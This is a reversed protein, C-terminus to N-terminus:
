FPFVLPLVFVMVVGIIIQLPLGVKIFDLATYQGAPMVLANPPTSFTSSFSMNAAICVALMFPMPNVGLTVATQLSITSMLVTTVTNSLFFTMVSTAIYIGALVMLPSHSGLTVALWGSIATSIGTKELAFSMPMMAACLVVTQWSISKYAAEMSRVCGTVIMLIAAITVATVPAIPIFDFVMLLVMLVLIAAALPAKHDMTVKSAQEMPQGLVVFDNDERSIRGIDSWAGQVLLVDGERVSRDALDHLLYEKKRRIGLVNLNYKYRFGIDRVTKNILGSTPMLLIEAIGVDYFDLAAGNGTETEHGGLLKGAVDEAFSEANEASGSLYLIDGANIVTDAKVAETNVTKFFRHQLGAGRRIELLNLGYKKRIELENVTKGAAESSEGVRVRFLNRSLGYEMVLQGPSKGSAKVEKRKRKSFFFKTLPLLVVTGIVVCIVGIPFLTFFSMGKYGATVMADNVIMNAPTGILTLMGGLSSAFAVPMLLRSPNMGANNAISVVIPLMLAVTGTNSVFAGIFTTALMVLLFLRTESKGALKLVKASILKALGTQLIGAGVIFLGCLMIVTSNSFGSLAEEPTLIQFILLATMVCLSVIDSRVKGSVFLVVAVALIILTTLM